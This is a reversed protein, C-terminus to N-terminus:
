NSMDINCTDKAWTDLRDQAATMEESSMLTDIEQFEPASVVQMFDWDYKEFAAMMMDVSDNLKGLDASIESPASSELDALMGAMTQFATKLSEPTPDNLSSDFGDSATKYEQLKACFAATDVAGGGGGGDSKKDDGCAGLLAATLIAGVVITKTKKM